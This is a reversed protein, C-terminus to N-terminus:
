TSSSSPTLELLEPLKEERWVSAVSLDDDFSSPLGDPKGSGSNGARADDDTFSNASRGSAAFAGVASVVAQPVDGTKATKTILDILRKFGFQTRGAGSQEVVGDSLLVLADGPGFTRRHPVFPPEALRLVTETAEGQEWGTASKTLWFGHGADIYWLCDDKADIIGCFLSIFRDDSCKARLFGDLRTMAETLVSKPNGERLAASLFAHAMVGLLAAPVGKGSVDGFWVATVAPGLPQVGFLDGAVGRAPIIRYNYGIGDYGGTKSPLAAVQIDHAAEMQGRQRQQDQRLENAAISSLVSGAIDAICQAFAAAAAAAPVPRTADLYLLHPVAKAVKVPICLACVVPTDSGVQTTHSSDGSVFQVTQGRAAQAVLTRSFLAPTSRITSPIPGAAAAAAAAAATAAAPSLSHNAASPVVQFNDASSRHETALVEVQDGCTVLLSARGYQTAQVCARLMIQAIEATGSADHMAKSAELLVELQGRAIVEPKPPPMVTLTHALPSDPATMLTTPSQGVQRVRFVFAGVALEDGSSLEYWTGPVLRRQCLMTGSASIDCVSWRRCQFRFKAHERSVSRYPDSIRISADSSRGFVLERGAPPVPVTLPLHPPGAILEFVLCGEASVPAPDSLNKPHNM